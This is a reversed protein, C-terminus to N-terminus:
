LRNADEQEEKQITAAVKASKAYFAARFEEPTIDHLILVNILLKQVDVAEELLEERSKAQQKRQFKWPYCDMLEHVEHALHTCFVLHQLKEDQPYKHVQSSHFDKQLRFMDATVLDM